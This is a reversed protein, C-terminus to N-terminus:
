TDPTDRHSSDPYIRCSYRSCSDQYWRRILDSRTTKLSIRDRHSKCFMVLKFPGLTGM